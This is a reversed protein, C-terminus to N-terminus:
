LCLKRGKAYAIIEEAESPPHKTIFNQLKQPDDQKLLYDVAMLTSAAPGYRERRRAIAQDYEAQLRAASSVGHHAVIPIRDPDSRPKAEGDAARCAAAFTSSLGDYEDVPAARRARAIVADFVARRFLLIGRWDTGTRAKEARWWARRAAWKLAVEQSAPVAEIQCNQAGPRLLHVIM